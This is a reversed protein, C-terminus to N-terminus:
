SCLVIDMPERVFMFVRSVYVLRAIVGLEDKIKQTQYVLQIYAMVVPSFM